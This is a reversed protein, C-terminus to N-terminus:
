QKLLRAALEDLNESALQDALEDLKQLRSLCRSWVKPDGDALQCEEGFFDNLLKCDSRLGRAVRERGIGGVDAWHREGLLQHTYAVTLISLVEPILKVTDEQSMGFECSLLDLQSNLSGRLIVTDLMPQPTWWTEKGICEFATKVAPDGFLMLQGLEARAEKM